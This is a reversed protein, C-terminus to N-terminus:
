SSPWKINELVKIFCNMPTYFCVFYKAEKMKIEWMKECVLLLRGSSGLLM